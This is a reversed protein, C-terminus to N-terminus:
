EDEDLIARRLYGLQEQDTWVGVPAPTHLKPREMQRGNVMWALCVIMRAQKAREYPEYLTSSYRYGRETYEADRRLIDSAQASLPAQGRRHDTVRFRLNSAAVSATHKLAVLLLPSENDPLSQRGAVIASTKRPELLAMDMARPLYIGYPDQAAVASLDEILAADIESIEPVLQEIPIPEIEPRFKGVQEGM